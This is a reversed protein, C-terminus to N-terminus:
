PARQAGVDPEVGRGEEVRDAQRAAEEARGEGRRAGRAPVRVDDLLAGLPPQDAGLRAVDTRLMRARLARAGCGRTHYVPHMFRRARGSWSRPRSTRRRPAPPIMAVWPKWFSVLKSM